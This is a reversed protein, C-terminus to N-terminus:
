DHSTIICFRATAFMQCHLAININQTSLLFLFFVKIIAHLHMIESFTAPLFFTELYMSLNFGPTLNYIGYNPNNM